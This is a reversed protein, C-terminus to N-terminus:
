QADPQLDVGTQDVGIALPQCGAEILLRRAETVHETGPIVAIGIDGGGAGTTKATGGLPALVSRAATVCSPVLPVGTAKALADTARGALALAALLASSAIEPARMACAQCAARSAKDIAALAAEVAARNATRAAQVAAVLSGTDASKGTFFPIWTVGSPWALREATGSACEITKGQQAADSPWAIRDPTARQFAIVGGHVAAAIDAGSGRSGRPGQAAAHAASAIELVKAKDIVPVREHSAGLALATAAVTVAASSGLGLKTTGDYFASSDVVIEDVCKVAPHDAGYRRALEAGLALLFESSGRPGSRRKAVVRRNVAVVLAPAGDLVAYEGTVILKGPATAHM